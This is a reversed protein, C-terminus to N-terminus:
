HACYTEDDNCGGGGEDGCVDKIDCSGSMRYKNRRIHRTTYKKCLYQLTMWRSRLSLLIRTVLSCSNRKDSKPEARKILVAATSSSQWRSRLFKHLYSFLYVKHLVFVCSKASLIHLQEISCTFLLLISLKNVGDDMRVVRKYWDGYLKSPSAITGVASSTQDSPTIKAYSIKCFCKNWAFLSSAM